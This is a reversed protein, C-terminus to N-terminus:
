FGSASTPQGDAISGLTRFVNPDIDLDLAHVSGDVFVANMVQPHSSGFRDQGTGDGRFDGGPAVDTARVTDEDWGATYGENDDAQPTGLLALNLRKEAVALTKSAGDRVDKMRRPPTGLDSGAQVLVGTREANSGAYDCLGHELTVGDLYTVDAYTVSQPGRRSPCFYFPHKAAVAAVIRAIDNAGAASWAATAEVYPLIQFPWGADQMVGTAPRGGSFNPPTWWANGGTPFATLAAHHAHFALGIQKLHNKCAVGRASERASQVAPLLLGILTALIAVVVLLEVLSFGADACRGAAVRVTPRTGARGSPDSAQM